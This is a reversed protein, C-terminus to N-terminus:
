TTTLRKASEVVISPMFLTRLNTLFFNSKVLFGM